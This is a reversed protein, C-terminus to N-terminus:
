NQRCLRGHSRSAHGRHLLARRIIIYLITFLTISPHISPKRQKKATTSVTITLIQKNRAVLVLALLNYSEGPKLEPWLNMFSDYMQDSRHGGDDIIIDFQGGTEKIWRQLVETNGQDGTVTNIGVLQGKERLNKVCAADYEAEWLEDQDTLIAQWLQVSAIAGSKYGMDCGLGIELFKVGKNLLHHHRRLYPLLFTGYMDAYKHMEVKDTVPPPLSKALEHFLEVDTKDAIPHLLSTDHKKDRTPVLHRRISSDKDKRQQQLSGRLHVTDQSSLVLYLSAIFSLFVRSMSIFHIQFLSRNKPEIQNLKIKTRKSFYCVHTQM